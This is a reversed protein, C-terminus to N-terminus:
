TNGATIAPSCIFSTRLDSSQSRKMSSKIAIGFKAPLRPLGSSDLRRYLGFVILSDDM